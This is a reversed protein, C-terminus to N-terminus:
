MKHEKAILNGIPPLEVIADEDKARMIAEDLLEHLDVYGTLTASRPMM